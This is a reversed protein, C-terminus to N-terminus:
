GKTEERVRVYYIKAGQEERESVSEVKVQVGERFVHNKLYESLAQLMTATNLKLDTVGRLPASVEEVPGGIAEGTKVSKAM